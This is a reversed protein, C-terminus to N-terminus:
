PQYYLKYGNAQNVIILDNWGVFSASGDTLAVGLGDPPPALTVGSPYQVFRTGVHPCMSPGSNGASDWCWCTWLTQSGPTLHDNLRHQSRYKLTSGSWLDDRGAWYIWGVRVDPQASYEPRLGFQDAGIYGERFSQCSNIRNLDPALSELLRWCNTYNIWIYNDAGPANYATRGPPLAGDNQQAYCISALALQRLNALDTTRRMSERTRSLVPLLLAMLMTLIAICVMLEILTFGALCPKGASIRTPKAMRSDAIIGAAGTPREKAINSSYGLSGRSALILRDARPSSRWSNVPRSTSCDKCRGATDEHVTVNAARPM